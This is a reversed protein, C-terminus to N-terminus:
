NNLQILDHIEILVTLNPPIFIIKKVEPHIEILNVCLPMQLQM